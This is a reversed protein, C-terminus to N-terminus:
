PVPRSSRLHFRGAPRGTRIRPMVGCMVRRRIAPRRRTGVLLVPQDALSPDGGVSLHVDPNATCVRSRGDKFTQIVAAPADPSAPQRAVDGGGAVSVTTALLVITLIVHHAM